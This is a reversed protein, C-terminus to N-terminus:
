DLLDRIPQPLRGALVPHAEALRLIDALDKGTM